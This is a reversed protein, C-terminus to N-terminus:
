AHKPVHLVDRPNSTPLNAAPSIYADPSPRLPSSVVIIAAPEIAQACCGCTVCTPPCCADGGSSQEAIGCQEPLLLATAGSASLILFAVVIAFLFRRVERLTAGAAVRGLFQPM